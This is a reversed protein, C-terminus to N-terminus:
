AEALEYEVASIDNGDKIEFSPCGGPSDESAPKMIGWMDVEVRVFGKFMVVKANQVRLVADPKCVKSQEGRIRFTVVGTDDGCIAEHLGEQVESVSKVKVVLNLGKGEPRIREVKPTAPFTCGSRQVIVSAAYAGARTCYNM